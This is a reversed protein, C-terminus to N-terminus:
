SNECRDLVCFCLSHVAVFVRSLGVYCLSLVWYAWSWKFYVISSLNAGKDSYCLVRAVCMSVSVSFSAASAPAKCSECLTCAVCVSVYISVRHHLLQRRPLFCVVCLGVCVSVIAMFSQAGVRLWWMGAHCGNQGGRCPGGRFSVIEFWLVGVSDNEPGARGNFAFRMFILALSAECRALMFLSRDDSTRPLAQHDIGSDIFCSERLCHGLVLRGDLMSDDHHLSSM